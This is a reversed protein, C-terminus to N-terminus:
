ESDELGRADARAGEPATTRASTPFVTPGRGETRAGERMRAASM